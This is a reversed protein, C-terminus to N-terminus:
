IPNTHRFLHLGLAATLLMGDPRKGNDRSRFVGVTELVVPVGGSVMCLLVFPRM